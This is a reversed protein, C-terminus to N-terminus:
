RLAVPSTVRRITGNRKAGAFLLPLLFAPGLPVRQQTGRSLGGTELLHSTGVHAPARQLQMTCGHGTSKRAAVFHAADSNQRYLQPWSIGCRLKGRLPHVWQACACAKLGEPKWLAAARQRSKEMNRKASFYPGRLSVPHLGIGRHPCRPGRDRCPPAGLDDSRRSFSAPPM